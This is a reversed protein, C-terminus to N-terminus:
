FQVQVTFDLSRGIGPLSTFPQNHDGGIWGALYVGGLPQEYRENFLNNVAASVTLQRWQRQSQLHVLTYSDSTPELRLEDVRQKDDVWEMTLRNRWGASAYELAVSINLPMIHYLDSGDDRREARTYALHTALTLVGEGSSFLQRQGDIEIGYLTADLNTFQLEPRTVAPSQRPHFSGVVEADIFDDVRTYYPALSLKNNDDSQWQYTAALSHAVEPNLDIDGIYGNGDGYWGIMASAMPSRGWSYREYLNPSRTKRGYGLELSQQSDIAYGVLATLDFNDDRRNRHSSNFALAAAADPNSPMINYPQVPDTTMAVREYRVGLQSRWQESLRNDSEAYLAYRTREGNNINVYTNPGMMMSGPVAPWWDDLTFQHLEHGLRLQNGAGYPLTAAITYGLDRGETFMPMTGPKEESFFGMAHEVDQWSVRSDLLGWDFQRQYNLNAGTTRNDVMDMYQNPFGQYPIQQHNLKLTLSEVESRWGLTLGHNESKYLTDQVKDGSSDRYSDAESTSGSYALSLRDNAVGARLTLGQQHSNNSYNFALALNTQLSEGARAFQPPESNIVITGGISDGGSSVPTIGAMVEVSHVRSADVYSLPPNMHNACASTTEAGDVLLKIRDDNLGRVIPLSAVGGGGAFDVKQLGPLNAANGSGQLQSQAHATVEVQELLPEATPNATTATQATALSSTILLPLTRLTFGTTRSKAGIPMALQTPKAVM